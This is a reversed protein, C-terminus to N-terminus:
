EVYTLKFFAPLDNMIEKCRKLFFDHQKKKNRDSITKDKEVACIQEELGKLVKMGSAIDDIFALYFSPRNEGLARYTENYVLAPNSDLFLGATAASEAAYRNSRCYWSQRWNPIPTLQIKSDASMETVSARGNVDSTYISIACPGPSVEENKFCPDIKIGASMYLGMTSIPIIFRGNAIDLNNSLDIKFPLGNAKKFLPSFCIMGDSIIVLNAGDLM